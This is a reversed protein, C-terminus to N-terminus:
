VNGRGNTMKYRSIFDDRNVYAGCLRRKGTFASRGHLVRWNDFILPRGPRLQEWYESEEATVIENWKRAAEYWERVGEVGADIGLRDSNNWRVQVLEGEEDHLLVPFARYPQVSIGENGSAHSYVPTNSLTAYAAPDQHHLKAACRFGDVLLSSGGSGDTHSLLHFLQLGAPDSFYTTDTHAALALSTYATDRSSLDSTFDWFGGYHTHRIFAIREILTQTASPDVPCNSVYSFGYERILKTWKGVGEDSQMIEEYDIVPPDDKISKTWRKEKVLGLREASQGSPHLRGVMDHPIVSQHGDSFEIHTVGTGEMTSKISIKPDISFTDLLRQKTDPHVCENCQCHDRRIKLRSISPDPIYPTGSGYHIELETLRSEREIATSRVYM